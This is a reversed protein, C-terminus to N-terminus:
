RVKLDLLHLWPKLEGEVPGNMTGLTQEFLVRAPPCEAM